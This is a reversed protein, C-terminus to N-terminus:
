LCSLNNWIKGAIGSTNQKKKVWLNKSEGYVIILSVPSEKVPGFHGSHDHEVIEASVEHTQGMGM